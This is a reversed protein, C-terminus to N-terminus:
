PRIASIYFNVTSRGSSAISAPSASPAFFDALTHVIFEQTPVIEVAVPNRRRQAM